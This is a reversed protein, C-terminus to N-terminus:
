GKIVGLPKLKAVKNALGAGHVVDVVDQVDKYAAPAEEIMGKNSAAQIHINKSALEKLVEHKSIKKLAEHRSMCRGAGHCVSGFTKEMASPNGVMVFSYRGMDGPVIVPQGVSRYHEPIEPHGAPFARTAGKRHVCLNNEMKAINHTVDYVLSLKISKGLASAFAERVQHMIIQRNTWAYNAAASMAALYTQGEESNVPACVLQGDPLNIKYKASATRMTKIYDDCVQHGLGRSGCHIMVTVQDKFLGFAQAAQSDYIEEVQQIELFHNGAGLTGLQPLGREKAHYSVTDAQAQPICGQSETNALDNKTGFGQAVAWTSGKTLVKDLESYSINVAKSKSGVGAPVHSFLAKILSDIQSSIDKKTLESRLLRVGCNIDYGVGGPSIIGENLDFAAVGGIPFGYGFHIDPMALSYKQIGPLCAVNIVQKYSQDQYIDNLMKEKTYIIGPVRMRSDASTPIKFCYDNVKQFLGKPYSM